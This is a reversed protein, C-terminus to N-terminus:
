GIITLDPIVGASILRFYVDTLLLSFLSVWAWQPHKANLRSIGNYAKRRVNGGRVCSFCDVRGGVLHRLSHCSFTYASVLTVNFVWILSGVKVGFGGEPFFTLVADYWLFAVVVFSAYLFYRHINNLVFLAREGRYSETSEAWPRDLQQAKGSCAPPDWFFARYYAKRYYYCTARFGLPIWLVFLPATVFGPLWDPRGIPPSYFPSLYQPFQESDGPYLLVITASYLGFATLVFVVSMPEVWWPLRKWAAAVSSM